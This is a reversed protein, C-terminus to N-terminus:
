WMLVSICWWKTFVPWLGFLKGTWYNMSACSPTEDSTAGISRCFYNTYHNSKPATAHPDFASETAAVSCCLTTEALVMAEGLNCCIGDQFNLIAARYFQCHSTLSSGDNSSFSNSCSLNMQLEVVSSQIEISNSPQLHIQLQISPLYFSISHQPEPDALLM